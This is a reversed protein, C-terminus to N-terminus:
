ESTYICGTCSYYKLSASYLQTCPVEPPRQDLRSSSAPSTALWTVQPKVQSCTSPGWIHCKQSQEPARYCPQGRQLSFVPFRFDWGLNSGNGTVVWFSSQPIKTVSSANWFHAPQLSHLHPKPKPVVDAAQYRLWSVIMYYKMIMAGLLVCPLVEPLVPILRGREVVRQLSVPAFSNRSSSAPYTQSQKGSYNLCAETQTILCWLHSCM